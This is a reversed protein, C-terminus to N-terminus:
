RHLFKPDVWSVLAPLIALAGFLCMSISMVILFGFFYVPLFSSITLVTFGIIVSMANFIIGKGSIRLTSYIATNLDEGERIHDRLHW